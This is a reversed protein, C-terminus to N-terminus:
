WNLGEITEWERYHQGNAAQRELGPVVSFEFSDGALVQDPHTGAFVRYIYPGGFPARLPVVQEIHPSISHHPGLVVNIPGLLPTYLAGWPTEVETWGQLFLTSDTNNTVTVTFGLLGGRHVYSTDPVVSMSLPGAPPEEIELLQNVGIDELTTERGSPWKITIEDISSAQGLGFHSIMTNQSLFGSGGNIEQIQVIRGVRAEIRAGIASRNSDIGTLKLKIWNNEGLNNRFLACGDEWNVVYIDPYGDDDYDGWAMGNGIRGFDGVGASDTVDSFTGDNNNSFLRNTASSTNHIDLDGDNDFDLFATGVTYLEDDDVGAEPAVDTFTGDGNNRYLINPSLRNVVYLDLQGDKDYDGWAVGHGMGTDGVGAVLTVDTFTGDGDNHYLSNRGRNTVYVDQLGDNDYDAWAANEGHGWDDVGEQAAVNTFSGNGNNRYLSNPWEYYGGNVVYIDLHGDNDYDVWTVAEGPGYDEVGAQFTVDTFTGNGNNHYLNNYDYNGVYLDLFGDNDYDGWAVGNTPSGCEVGAQYTVDSFTGDGDNQYLYNRDGSSGVYFDLLGDNNFDGWCVGRAGYSPGSVGAENTVDSFFDEVVRAGHLSSRALCLCIFLMTGLSFCAISRKSTM